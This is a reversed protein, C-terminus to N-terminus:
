LKGGLEQAGLLMSRDQIASRVIEAWKASREDSLVILPRAPMRRTGLQHFMAYPLRTGLTLSGADLEEVSGAAGPTTLSDRLAGTHVLLPSAQMARRSPPALGAGGRAAWPTGEARGESAFQQAVMERFDDAVTALAPANDALAEQFSELAQSVAQSNDAYTFTIM